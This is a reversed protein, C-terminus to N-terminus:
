SGLLPDGNRLWRLAAGVHSRLSFKALKWSASDLPASALASLVIRRATGFDGVRQRAFTGQTVAPSLGGHRVAAPAGDGSM